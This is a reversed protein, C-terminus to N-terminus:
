LLKLWCDGSQGTRLWIQSQKLRHSITPSWGPSDEDLYDLSLWTTEELTRITGTTSFIKPM